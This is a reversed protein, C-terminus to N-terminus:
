TPAQHILNQNMLSQIQPSIFWLLTRHHLLHSVECALFRPSSLPAYPCPVDMLPMCAEGGEGLLNGGRILRSLQSNMLPDIRQHLKSANKPESWGDHTELKLKIVTKIEKENQHIHLSLLTVTHEMTKNSSHLNPLLFM